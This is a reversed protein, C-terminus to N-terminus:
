LCFLDSATPPMDLSGISKKEVCMCIYMQEIDCFKKKVRVESGIAVYIMNIMIMTKRNFKKHITSFGPWVSFGWLSIKISESIDFSHM